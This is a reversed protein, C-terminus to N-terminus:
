LAISPPLRPLRRANCPKVAGWGDGPASGFEYDDVAAGRRMRGALEGGKNIESKAYQHQVSKIQEWIYNCGVAEQFSLAIDTNYRRLNFNFAVHSLSDYYKPKL